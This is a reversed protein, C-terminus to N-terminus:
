ASGVYLEPRRGRFWPNQDRQQLAKEPDVDAILLGERLWLEGLLAADADTINSGGPCTNGAEDTGCCCAAAIIMSNRYALDRVEAYGRSERNNLWLVLPCGLLAYSRTMEPFDGDYCIMLGIPYGGALHGKAMFTVLRDGPSYFTPEHRLGGANWWLHTKRYCALVGQGSVVPASIYYNEGDRETLGYVILADRGRLLNQFARTTPGDVPEALEHCLPTYGLLLEEHFLIIDAGADLARAASALAKSRNQDPQGPNHDQQIVAIRIM